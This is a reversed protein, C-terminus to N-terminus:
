GSDEQPNSSVSPTIIINKCQNIGQMRPCCKYYPCEICNGKETAKRNEEPGAIKDEKM